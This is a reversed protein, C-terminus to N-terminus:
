DASTDFVDDFHCTFSTSPRPQHHYVQPFIDNQGITSLLMHTFPTPPPTHAPSTHSPSVESQGMISLLTHTHHPPPPPAPSPQASSTHSPPFRVKAWPLSCHTHPPPPPQPLPSIIYSQPSGWRPGHHLATHTHSAPQPQGLLAGSDQPGQETEQQGQRRERGWRGKEEEGSDARASTAASASCTVFVGLWVRCSWLQLM